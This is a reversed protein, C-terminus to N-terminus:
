VYKANKYFINGILFCIQTQKKFQYHEYKIVGSKQCNLCILKLYNVINRVIDLYKWTKFNQSDVWGYFFFNFLLSWVKLKIFVVNFNSFNTFIFLIYAFGFRIIVFLMNLYTLFFCYLKKYVQILSHYLYRSKSYSHSKAARM